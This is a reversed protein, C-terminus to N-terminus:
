TDYKTRDRTKGEEIFNEYSFVCSYVKNGLSSVTEIGQFQSHEV